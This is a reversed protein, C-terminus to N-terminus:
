GGPGSRRAGPRLRRRSQLGAGAAAQPPVFGTTMLGVGRRRSLPERAIMASSPTPQTWFGHLRPVTAHGSTPGATEARAQGSVPLAGILLWFGAIKAVTPARRM